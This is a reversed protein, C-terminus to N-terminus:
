LERGWLRAWWSRRDPQAPAPLARQLGAVQNQLRMIEARLARLEDLLQVDVSAPMEATVEAAVTEVSAADIRWTGGPGGHEDKHGALRGDRLWRRVTSESVQLRTAAANVTLSEIHEM